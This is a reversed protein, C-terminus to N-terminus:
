DKEGILAETVNIIHDGIKECRSFLDNYIMSNEVNYMETEITKYHMKRLENRCKNIALEAEMAADVTVTTDDAELNAVMIKLANEMLVFMNSLNTRQEERLAIEKDLMREVGKSMQYYIDGIREMDTIMGLMGRVRLSSLESLEVQATKALYDAVDIEIKDTIDEYKALKEIMVRRQKKDTNSVLECMFGHMKMTVRGFHAVEQKANYIAIEPTATIGGDIFELRHQEDEEGQSPIMKEVIKVIFQM